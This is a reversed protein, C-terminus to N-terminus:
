SLIVAESRAGRVRQLSTRLEAEVASIGGTGSWVVTVFVRERPRNQLVSGIADMHAYSTTM